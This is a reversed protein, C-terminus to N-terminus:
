RQKKKIVHQAARKEVAPYFSIYVYKQELQMIILINSKQKYYYYVNYITRRAFSRMRRNTQAKHAARASLLYRSSQAGM